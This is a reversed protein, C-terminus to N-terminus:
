AEELLREGLAQGATESERIRLMEGIMNFSNALTEAARIRLRAGNLHPHIKALHVSEADHLELMRRVIEERDM